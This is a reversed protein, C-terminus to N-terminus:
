FFIFFVCFILSESQIVTIKGNPGLQDGEQDIMFYKSLEVYKKVKALDKPTEVLAMRMADPETPARSFFNKLHEVPQNQKKLWKLYLNKSCARLAELKTKGEGAFYRKLIKIGTPLTVL